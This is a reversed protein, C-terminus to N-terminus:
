KVSMYIRGDVIISQLHLLRYGGASVFNKAERWAIRMNNHRVIVSLTEISFRSSVVVQFSYSRFHKQKM